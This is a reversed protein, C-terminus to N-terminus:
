QDDFDIRSLCFHIKIRFDLLFHRRLRFNLDSCIGQDNGSRRDERNDDPKGTQRVACRIVAFRAAVAADQPCTSPGSHAPKYAEAQGERACSICVALLSRTHHFPIVRAKWPLAILKVM